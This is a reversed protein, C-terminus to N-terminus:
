FDELDEIYCPKIDKIIEEIEDYFLVKKEILLSVIRELLEKNNMLINEAKKLYKEMLVAVEEDIREQLFVNQKESFDRYSNFFRFGKYADKEVLGKILDFAEDIDRKSGVDLFNFKNEVAVKGALYILVEKQVEKITYFVDNEYCSNCCGGVGGFSKITVLGIKRKFLISMVAHGAEHYAKIKDGKKDTNFNEINKFKIRLYANYIDEFEILERKNYVAYIGAENIVSELVACSDRKLLIAIRECDVNSAVKKDKLYYAIIKKSYEITPKEVKIQRGFRGARLLSEPLNRIDNATAIVFVDKGKIDELCSQISVFEEKNCRVDFNDQAFKDMDDLLIISPAGEVAKKFTEKILSVFRGNSINKKCEFVKRNTEEILCRAMLTKGLGPEGYILLTQPVSVGLALYKERNNLIDCIRYLEEKEIEYGIVKDFSSM